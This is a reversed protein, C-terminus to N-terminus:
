YAVVKITQIGVQGGPFGVGEQVASGWFRVDGPRVNVLQITGTITAEEGPALDKGFGWRFPYQTGASDWMVGVRWFGPREFYKPEGNDQKWYNFTQETTYATGPDPGLSRLLTDGTNKVSIEVNLKGGQLVVTPTIRVKLVELQPTGGGEVRVEKVAEAVNGSSDKAQVHLVYSGDPIRQGNSTGNWTHGYLGANRKTPPDLLYTKGDRDSAYISVEANKSVGYSLRMEDDSADGNPTITDRDVALDTVELPRPDGNTIIIKGKAEAKQGDNGEALVTYWYEGDPLLRRVPKGLDPAYTGDFKAVYSGASRRENQRLVYQAGDQGSLILSISASRSLTYTITAFDEKGDGNPSITVPSASVGKLLPGAACGSSLPMALLLSLVIMLSLALKHKRHM